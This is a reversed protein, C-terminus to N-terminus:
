KMMKRENNIIVFNGEEWICKVKVPVDSEVTVQPKQMINKRAECVLTVTSNNIPYNKIGHKECRNIRWVIEDEGEGRQIGLVYEILISIPILGTWGVFDARSSSGRKSSEPAYNEWFTGTQKYCEMVNKLDNCAIEYAMKDYKHNTLGKLIMYNTPAWISGKWYDGEMQYDPHDASLVPVRHYRKFEKENELHQVFGDLREEPIENTLLGWYPAVNKVGNLKGERWLDYYFKTDEDWLKENIYKSLNEKEEELEAVDESRVIVSAIKILMECSLIAQFCTDIWVMHGHSFMVNYQPQLRPLNDMGCAFGSAWYSGDRWTRFEKLWRHYALLPPFVQKLREKDRYMCYYEWECWPLINPGTSSPDFRTFRDTGNKEILERSIFGDKHQHAYFNDLTEQFKFISDGYKSFMLIFASDWMFLNGNFATDIFPSIFTSHKEPNFINSFAIEWAKYYADIECEHGQWIPMPVKDKQQEFIPLEIHKQKRGIFRNEKVYPEERYSIDMNQKYNIM